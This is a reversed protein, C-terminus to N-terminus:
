IMNSKDIAANGGFAVAVHVVGHRQLLRACRQIVTQEQCLTGRSVPPLERPLEVHRGPGLEQHSQVQHSMLINGRGEPTRSPHKNHVTM